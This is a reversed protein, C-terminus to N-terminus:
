IFYTNHLKCVKSIDGMNNSLRTSFASAPLQERIKTLMESYEKSGNSLLPELKTYLGSENVVFIQKAAADTVYYANSM